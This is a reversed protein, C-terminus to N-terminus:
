EEEFYQIVREATFGDGDVTGAIRVYWGVVLDDFTIGYSTGDDYERFRTSDTTGVTISDGAYKLPTEVLVVITDEGLSEITGYLRFSAEAQGGCGGGGGQCRTIAGHRKGQANHSGAALSPTVMLLAILVVIALVLAKRRM